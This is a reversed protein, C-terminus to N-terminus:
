VRLRHTSLAMSEEHPLQWGKKSKQLFRSTLSKWLVNGVDVPPVYGAVHCNRSSVYGTSVVKVAGVSRTWRNVQLECTKEKIELKRWSYRKSRLTSFSNDRSASLKGTSFSPSDFKRALVEFQWGLLRWQMERTTTNCLSLSSVKQLGFSKRSSVLSGLPTSSKKSLSLKQLPDSM